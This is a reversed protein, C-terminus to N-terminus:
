TVYGYELDRAVAVPDREEMPGFGGAGPIMLTLRHGPQVTVTPNTVEKGDLLIHGLVGPDGGAIGPPPVRLNVPRLVMHVDNRGVNKFTLIQGLGGRCRGAGASDPWLEKREIVMPCVNEFIETPTVIGNVPFYITPLGDVDSLAGKGGNVIMHASFPRGNDTFGTANVGWFTGSGAQVQDPIVSVLAQYLPEHTHISTVSRGKVPSPFTCNVICGEPAYVHIPRFLGQNNPIEPVLCCKLAILTDGLTANLTANIALDPVQPSTGTFDVSLSGGEITVALAIRTPSAAGDATVDARYTGDPVATIAEIMAAESREKIAGSLARLDNLHYDEMFELLRETGVHEASAIARLDGIVMDPVRVNARIINFLDENPVGARYLKCPLIRLGEEYVDRSEFYDLTGGIDAVHAATALYAVIRKNRFVPKIVTVDPLHGTGIWPDNTILIDGEELTEPPIERLVTTATRPLMVTFGTSSLVSQCVADAEEDLLVCAFDRAEGIITSFSTRVLARDTEDMITIVRNWQIELTVPDLTTSQDEALM